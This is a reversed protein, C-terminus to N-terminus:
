YFVSVCLGFRANNYNHFVFYLVIMSIKVLFFISIYTCIFSNSKQVGSVLVISCIFLVEIKFLNKILFFVTECEERWFIRSGQSKAQTQLGAIGFDAQFKFKGTIHSM